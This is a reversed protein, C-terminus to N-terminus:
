VPGLNGLHKIRARGREPTRNRKTTIRLNVNARKRKTPSVTETM